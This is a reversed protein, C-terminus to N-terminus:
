LISVSGLHSLLCNILFCSSNLIVLCTNFIFISKGHLFLLHCTYRTVCELLSREHVFMRELYYYYYYVMVKERWRPPTTMDLWIVCVCVVSMCGKAWMSTYNSGKYLKDWGCWGVGRWTIVVLTRSPRGFSCLTLCFHGRSVWESVYAGLSEVRDYKERMTAWGGDYNRQGGDYVRLPRM